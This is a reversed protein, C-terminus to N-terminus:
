SAKFFLMGLSLKLMMIIIGVGKVWNEVNLGEDHKLTKYPTHLFPVVGIPLLKRSGRSSEIGVGGPACTEKLLVAESPWM